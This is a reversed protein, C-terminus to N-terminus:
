IASAIFGGIVALMPKLAKTAPDVDLCFAELATAGLLLLSDKPAFIVQCTLQGEQGAVEFLAEGLLRRERRGDPLILDRPRLPELGIAELKDEPM